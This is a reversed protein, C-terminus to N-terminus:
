YSLVTCSSVLNSNVFFIQRFLKLLSIYFVTLHRRKAKYIIHLLGKCLPVNISYNFHKILAVGCLWRSDGKYCPTAKFPPVSQFTNRKRFRKYPTKHVCHKDGISNHCYEPSYVTESEANFLTSFYKQNRKCTSKSQKKCYETYYHYYFIYSQYSKAVSSKICARVFFIETHQFFIQSSKM